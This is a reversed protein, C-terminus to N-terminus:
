SHLVIWRALEMFREFPLAEVLRVGLNPDLFPCEVNRETALPLGVNRERSKRSM